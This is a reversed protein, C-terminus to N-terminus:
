QVEKEIKTDEGIKTFKYTTVETNSFVSDKQEMLIILCRNALVPLYISFEASSVDDLVALPEDLILDQMYSSLTLVAYRMMVSCMARWSSPECLDVVYGDDYELTMEKNPSLKVSIPKSPRVIQSVAYIADNLEDLTETRKGTLCAELIKKNKKVAAVAAEAKKLANTALRLKLSAEDRKERNERSVKIKYESSAKLGSISQLFDSDNIDRKELM